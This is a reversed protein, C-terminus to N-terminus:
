LPFVKLYKPFLQKRVRNAAWKKKSAIHINFFHETSVPAVPHGEAQVRFDVINDNSYPSLTANIGGIIPNDTGNIGIHSVPCNKNQNGIVLFAFVKGNFIIAYSELREGLKESSTKFNTRSVLIFLLVYFTSMDVVVVM